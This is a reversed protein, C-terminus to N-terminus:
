EWRWDFWRGRLVEGECGSRIASASIGTGRSAEGVSRWKRLLRGDLDYQLVGPRSPKRGRRGGQEEVESWELNDARNNGRDGDRHRLYPRCRPNPVFARAVLYAVDVRERRGEWCLNVFRGGFVSVEHGDRYIRGRDSVSYMGGFERVKRVREPGDNGKFLM